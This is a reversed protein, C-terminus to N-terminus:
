VKLSTRVPLFPAPSATAGDFVTVSAAAGPDSDVTGVDVVVSGVVVSGVVVKVVVDAGVVVM